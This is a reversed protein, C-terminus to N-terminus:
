PARGAAASELAVHLSLPGDGGRRDGSAVLRRWPWRAVSAVAGPGVRQALRLDVARLGALDLELRGAADGQTDLASPAYGDTALARRLSAPNWAFVLARASSVLCPALEPLVRLGLLCSGTYSEHALPTRAVGWHREVEAVMRAAAREAAARNRVGLAVAIRPMEAGPLPTYLAAEWTGDLVTAGLAEARLHLLQDAQSGEPVLAALDLAGDVRVRAHLLRQRDDLLAPGSPRGGPLLDALQTEPPTWRLELATGRADRTVRLLARPGGELLPLALAAAADARYAHLGALEAGADACRLAASWDAAREAVAEVNECGPLAERLRRAARAAPTDRLAELEQLLAHLAGSRASLLAGPPWEADPPPAEPAGCALGWALSLGTCLPLLATRARRRARLLPFAIL